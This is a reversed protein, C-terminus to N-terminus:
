RSEGDMSEVDIEYIGKEIDRCIQEYEQNTVANFKISDGARFLFAAEKDKDFLQLPTRGIINWGGPSELPYIGTQQDAIGVSGAAIKDRPTELRPAAISNIMGGLYPFGPLFGLMYVLYVPEQHMKIVDHISHNHYEGVRKLDPGYEGGYVVPVHILRASNTKGEFEWAHLEEIKEKIDQYLIIRFDYYIAVSDYAPVWESVGEIPRLTLKQCFYQIERNLEPSVEKQFQVKIGSDGLPQISIGM